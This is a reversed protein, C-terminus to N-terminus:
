KFSMPTVTDINLLLKLCQFIIPLLCMADQNLVVSTPTPFIGMSIFNPTALGDGKPDLNSVSWPDILLNKSVKMKQTYLVNSIGENSLKTLYCDSRPALCKDLYLHSLFSCSLGATWEQAIYLRHLVGSASVSHSMWERIWCVKDTASKTIQGM